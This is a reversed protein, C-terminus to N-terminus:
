RLGLGNTRYLWYFIGWLVLSILTTVLLKLKFQPRIPASPETGATIDNAEAQTRVGFPLVAQLVVSWIVTYVAIFSVIGM